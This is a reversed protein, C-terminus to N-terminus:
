CFICCEGSGVGGDDWVIGEEKRAPVLAHFYTFSLPSLALSRRADRSEVDPRLHVIETLTPILTENLALKCYNYVRGTADASVQKTRVSNPEVVQVSRRENM